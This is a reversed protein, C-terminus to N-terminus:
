GSQKEKLQITVVTGEQPRSAATVTGGHKDVISRVISLGLGASGRDQSASGPVRYFPEFIRELHEPPIGEGQDEIRVTVMGKKDPVAEVSVESHVSAYKIANDIINILAEKLKQRDAEVYIGDRVRSDDMRIQYRKGRVNMEGCTERILATLDIEEFRYAFPASSARSLELIDIVLGNLRKSEDIIYSTGKDFFERDTFGNEQMMQAYGLITTLPTKLEHTVHDFFAKSEKQSAELADRDRRITNLQVKITNVMQGFRLALDGIEDRSRIEPPPDFNGQAVKVSASTLLRIPRAIQRALLLSTLFILTFIGAAFATMLSQFQRTERYLESYDRELRYIGALSGTRGEPYLSGTLVARINDGSRIITYSTKGAAARSLGEGSLLDSPEGGSLLLGESSYLGVAYGTEASMEAAANRAEDELGAATLEAQRILFYQRVYLDVNKAAETMDKSVTTAFSRETLGYAAYLLLSLGAFLIFSSSILIKQQISFRLLKSIRNLLGTASALFRKM